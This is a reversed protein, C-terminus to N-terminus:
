NGLTDMKQESHIIAYFFSYNELKLCKAQVPFRTFFRHPIDRLHTHNYNNLLKYSGLIENSNWMEHKISDNLTIWNKGKQLM